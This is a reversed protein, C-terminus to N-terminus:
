ELPDNRMAARVCDLDFGRRLLFDTAKRRKVPDTLDAASCRRSLLERASQIWDTDCDQLATAITESDLGHTRLEARIRVPGHGNAARSYVLSAAFRTDDQFGQEHLRDMAQAALDPDIGRTELKRGLERRSHERRVLLELAKNYADALTAPQDTKQRDAM